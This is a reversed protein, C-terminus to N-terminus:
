PADPAILRMLTEHTGVDHQNRPQRLRYEGDPQMEWGSYHDELMIDLIKWLRKRLPTNEIPTVAEVRNELNRYMWDASGIYFEGGEPQDAGNRFHFIRSHELFRGIVSIVRINESLGKVGPRLCCFGRVILDIPLGRRSAEYLACIIQPDELSNMKAVIRAPRGAEHHAVEREIMELFQERMNVPAVILKEYDRQRSRGTLYNFLQALDRTFEPRATFLGLDTYLRATGAHYNGTGIHAYSRVQDGERRVILTTKTHTKLGVIGYVVHVGAEELAQAVQINRHEDFRAKLEVLCIVQKGSEAARILTEIFPSDDGTRYLTMKIAEVHPDEAATKIFHETSRAFSEYPHHVLLDGGRILRFIDTEEDALADPVVPSWPRYKLEPLSLRSLPLLDTYDLEGPLEYVDKEHLSLERVLFQLIWPDPDPGHELRVAEAFRRQRLEDEILELLDEVDEEDREIDANRTLRFPMVGVIQMGPFLDDLNEVLVDLLRVFQYDNKNEGKLRRWGPLSEPIKVRAFLKESRGPQQLAVGLSQSLNS